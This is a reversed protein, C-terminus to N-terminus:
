QESKGEGEQAAWSQHKSGKRRGGGWTFFPTWQVSKGSSPGSSTCYKKEM